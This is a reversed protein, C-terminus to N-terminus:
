PAICQWRGVPRHRHASMDLWETLVDHNHEGRMAIQGPDRTESATMKYPSRVVQRTGGDRNDITAVTGRHQLTPSELVEGLQRLNGWALNAHDLAAILSDRDPFSLLWNTIIEHRDAKKEAM